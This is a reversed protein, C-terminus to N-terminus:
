KGSRIDSVTRQEITLSEFNRAGGNGIPSQGVIGVKIKNKMPLSCLRSMFFQEGDLSYHVGFVNGKRALQLWVQNGDINVGNADDSVQNTIVTVVANKDYDTREFCAKAWLKDNDLALLVCADWTSEFELSVLAKIVFDGEIEQYAFPSGSQVEGTVPNIFFDVNPIAQITIKGDCEKFEPKSNMWEFKEIM